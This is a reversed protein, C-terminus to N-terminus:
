ADDREPVVAFWCTLEEEGGGGQGLPTISAVRWGDDFYEGLHEQAGRDENSAETMYITLLRQEM